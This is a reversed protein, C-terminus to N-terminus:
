ALLINGPSAPQVTGDLFNGLSPATVTGKGPSCIQERSCEHLNFGRYVREQSCIQERSCKYPLIGPGAFRGGQLTRPEEDAFPLEPGAPLRKNLDTYSGFPEKQPTVLTPTKPTGPM